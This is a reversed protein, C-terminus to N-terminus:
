LQRLSYPAQLHILGFAQLRQLPLVVLEAARNALDSKCNIAAAWVTTETGARPESLTKNDLTLAESVGCRKMGAEVTSM